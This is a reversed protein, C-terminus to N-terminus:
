EATESGPGTAGDAGHQGVAMMPTDGSGVVSVNEGDDGSHDVYANPDQSEEFEPEQSVYRVMLLNELDPGPLLDLPLGVETGPAGDNGPVAATTDGEGATATATGGQGGSAGDEPTAFAAMAGGAIALLAALLSISLWSIKRKM